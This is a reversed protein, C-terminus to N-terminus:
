KQVYHSIVKSVNDLREVHDILKTAIASKPMGYIISTEQSEAIAVTRGSKKLQIMGETGDSGMGTLIIAVKEYESLNSISTFLRDVSPRHGKVPPSEDLYAFLDGGEKRVTLHYGGPAIYACGCKLKEKNKAEKVEIASLQNLRAALSQTFGPPMHQVILIPAQISAPIATLVEQLARPGGTSTGICVIKNKKSVVVPVEAVNQKIPSISAKVKPINAKSAILLKSILEDKVKHLDLSIAGSPKAVFDIAGYQMALFTNNAGEFTTSSLMVVPTPKIKMLHQLTELGDMVPMEVDLTIVDPALLTVKKLAEEGDRATGVVKFRHDKDLFDTIVKRMFASDDVILVKIESM